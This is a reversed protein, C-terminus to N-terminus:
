AEESPSPPETDWPPPFEPERGEEPFDNIAFWGDQWESEDYPKLRGKKDFIDETLKMYVMERHDFWEGVSDADWAGSKVPDWGIARMWTEFEKRNVFFLRYSTSTLEGLRRFAPHNTSLITQIADDKSKREETLYRTLEQLTSAVSQMESLVKMESIRNQDKLFRQFLGAWQLRLFDVIDAATEFGTIPNNRPLQYLAEVFEFIKIDDVFRYKTEKSDKNLQYTSYESLVNKEVFIFVPINRELARKLEVQSISHDEDEQSQSGFRGGIISVVVDCLDVERYASDELPKEKGYPIAGTEHRVPEYGLNLIFRELDERVQKLDYYTSSIFIRPKAM